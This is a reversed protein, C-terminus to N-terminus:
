SLAPDHLARTAETPAYRALAEILGRIHRLAMPPLTAHRAVDLENAITLVAFDDLDNGHVETREGTFRDRLQLQDRGLQPYTDARDCAGYLYVLREPEPGIVDALPRRETVPVLALPFGDTGYTAHCIAALRTRRSASWETTLTYVRELHALLTGGPHQVADAGLSAQLAFARRETTDAAQSTATEAARPPIM